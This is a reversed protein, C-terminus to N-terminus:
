SEGSIPRVSSDIGYDTRTIRQEHTRQRISRNKAISGPRACGRGHDLHVGSCRYRFQRARHGMNVLREGFERDQGEYQMREDFDNADIVHKKLWKVHNCITFSVLAFM